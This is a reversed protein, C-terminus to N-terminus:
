HIFFYLLLCILLYDCLDIFVYIFVSLTLVYIVLYMFRCDRSTEDTVKCKSGAQIDGTKIEPKTRM